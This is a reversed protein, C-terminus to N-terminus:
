IRLLTCLLFADHINREKKKKKLVKEGLFNNNTKNSPTVMDKYIRNKPDTQKEEMKWINPMQLPSQSIHYSNDEVVLKTHTQTRARM